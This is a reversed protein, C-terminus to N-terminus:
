GVSAASGNECYKWGGLNNETFVPCEACICLEAFNLDTCVATGTACYLGPVDDPTPMPDLGAGMATELATNKDAVCSSEIQVPCEGCLCKLVNDRSFEANPM